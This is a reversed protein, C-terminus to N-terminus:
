FKEIFEKSNFLENIAYNAINKVLEENSLIYEKIDTSCKSDNGQKSIICSINSYHTFDNATLIDIFATFNSRLEILEKNDTM